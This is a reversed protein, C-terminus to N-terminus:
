DRDSLKKFFMWVPMVLPWGAGWLGIKKWNIAFSERTEKNEAYHMLFFGVNLWLSIILLVFM